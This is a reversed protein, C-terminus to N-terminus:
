QPVTFARVESSAYSTYTHGDEHKFNEYYALYYYTTGPTLNQFTAVGNNGGLQVRDYRDSIKDNFLYVYYRYEDWEEYDEQFLFSASISVSTGAISPSDSVHALWKYPKPEGGSVPRVFMRCDRYTGGYLFMGAELTYIGNNLGARESTCIMSASMHRSVTMFDKGSYHGARALFRISNGNIRSTFVVTEVEDAGEGIFEQKFDCNAFLENWDDVDPTRWGKGLNVTAADDSPELVTKMDILDGQRESVSYKDVAWGDFGEVKWYKNYNAPKSPETEGWAFREGAIMPDSSGLDSAAWKIGSPLGLDVLEPAEYKGTGDDVDIQEQSDTNDDTDATCGYSAATLAVAVAIILSLSKKMFFAELGQLYLCYKPFFSYLAAM